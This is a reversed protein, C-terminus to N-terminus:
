SVPTQPLLMYAVQAVAVLRGRTDELDVHVPCLTRGLKIVKAKVVVDTVCPRLYRISLDSTALNQEVPTQTMVAYCAVMDAATALLGGHYSNFIGDSEARHPMTGHSIGKELHTITLGFHHIAPITEMREILPTYQDDLTRVAPM